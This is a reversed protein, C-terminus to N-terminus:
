LGTGLIRGSMGRFIHVTEIALWISHEDCYSQCSPLFAGFILSKAFLNSSSVIEVLVNERVASAPRYASNQFCFFLRSICKLTRRRHAARLLLNKLVPVAFWTSLAVLRCSLFCSWNTVRVSCPTSQAFSLVLCAIVM